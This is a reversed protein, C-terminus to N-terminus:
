CRRTGHRRCRGVRFVSRRHWPDFPAISGSVLCYPGSARSGKADPEVMQAGTVVAGRTPLGIDTAPITLHALPGCETTTEASAVGPLCMAGFILVATSLKMGVESM